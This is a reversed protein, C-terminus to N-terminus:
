KDFTDHYDYYIEGCEKPIEFGLKMLDYVAYWLSDYKAQAQAGTIEGDEHLNEPSMRGEISHYLGTADDRTMNKVTLHTGKSHLRWLNEWDILRQLHKM